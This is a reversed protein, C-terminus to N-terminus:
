DMPPPPADPQDPECTAIPPENRLRRAIDAILLPDSMLLFHSMTHTGATWLPTMGPPASNTAGVWTDNLHAYPVLEQPHEPNHHAPANLAALWDSGPKMDRSARDVRVLRALKAGRHPTGLTFLRVIPLDLHAAAYRSVLGGMSIAVVDVGTALEGASFRKQITHMVSEAFMEIRSAFPRSISLSPGSGVLRMLRARCAETLLPPSRWGGIVVLPRDLPKPAARMKARAAALEKPSALFGPNIERRSAVHRLATLPSTLIEATTLPTMAM